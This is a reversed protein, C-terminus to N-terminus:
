LQREMDAWQVLLRVCEYTYVIQLFVSEPAYRHTHCFLFNWYFLKWRPLCSHLLIALFHSSIIYFMLRFLVKGPSSSYFKVKRINYYGVDGIYLDGVTDVAIGYPSLFTASTVSGDICGYTGAIGAITTVLSASTIMRVAHYGRDPVYLNGITDIALTEFQYFQALTGIGDVLSSGGSGVLTTVFGDPSIKRIKYNLTDAVYVNGTSDVVLSAPSSFTALTGLGDASGAKSPSGAFMSVMKSPSITSVIDGSQDSAYLMGSPSIAIGYPLLFNAATGVGDERASTGSGAITTVTGASTIMRIRYNRSDAVYINGNSDVAIQRNLNFKANTGVGDAFGSIGSLGALVTAYGSSSIKRIQYKLADSVYLNGTSDTALSYPFQFHANTGYGDSYGVATSSGALTTTIALLIMSFSLCRNFTENINNNLIFSM